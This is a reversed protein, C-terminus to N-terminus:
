GRNHMWAAHNRAVYWRHFLFWGVCPLAFLVAFAIPEPIGHDLLLFVLSLIVFGLFAITAGVAYEVGLRWEGIRRYALYARILIAMALAILWGLWVFVIVIGEGVSSWDDAFAGGPLALSAIVALRRADIM